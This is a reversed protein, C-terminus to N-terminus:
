RSGMFHYLRGSGFCSWHNGIWYCSGGLFLGLDQGHGILPYSSLWQM